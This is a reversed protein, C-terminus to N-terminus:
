EASCTRHKRVFIYYLLDLVSASPRKQGFFQWHVHTGIRPLDIIVTLKVTACYNIYYYVVMYVTITLNITSVTVELDRALTNLAPYYISASVPSIFAAFSAMLITFIKQKEKLLTHPPQEPAVVPEVCTADSAKSVNAAIETETEREPKTQSPLSTLSMTTIVDEQPVDPM